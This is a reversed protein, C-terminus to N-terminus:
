DSATGPLNGEVLALPSDGQSLALGAPHTVLQPHGDVGGVEPLQPHLWLQKASAKRM